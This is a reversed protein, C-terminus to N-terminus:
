KLSAEFVGDWAAAPPHTKMTRCRNSFVRAPGDGPRLELVRAFAAAAADWSAARYLRPRQPVEAFAAKWDDPAAGMAILEYITGPQGRGLVRVWDLERATVDNAVKGYTFESLLLQTQYAKNLGELRS